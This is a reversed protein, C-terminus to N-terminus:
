ERERRQGREGTSKKRNIHSNGERRKSMNNGKCSHGEELRM